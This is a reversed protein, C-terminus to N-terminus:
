IQRLVKMSKGTWFADNRLRERDMRWRAWAMGARFGSVFLAIFILAFFEMSM